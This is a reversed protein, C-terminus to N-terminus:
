VGRARLAREMAAAEAMRGEERWAALLLRMAALSQPNADLYRATVTDAARPQGSARLAADLRRLVPEGFRITAAQEYQAVAGRPDGGLMRVDGAVLWAQSAGSQRRALPRGGRPGSRGPARGAARACLARGGRRFQACGSLALLACGAASRPFPYSPGEGAGLRMRRGAGARSLDASALMAQGRAKQGLALWSRAVLVKLYPPAFPQRAVADWRLVVQRNDGSRATVRALLQQAELNGPQLRALRELLGAAVAYNGARYELVGGLLMAGPLDRLATGTRQLLSRALESRGARAALVAQLYFIRPEGPDAQALRRVAALMDRNRGMDGLTAAYEVLLGADDPHFRLGQEFWPLGARLGFRARVMMGRMALARASRPALTVAREAAEQAQAEEGGTFRLRAISVWLDADGPAVKLAQDFDQGAQPLHGESMALEGRMRWGLAATDPTFDGKDLIRHAEVRDDRALLAAGLDARLADESAGQALGRAAASRRCDSRAPCARRALPRALRRDGWGGALVAAL